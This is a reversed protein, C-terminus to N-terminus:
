SKKRCGYKDYICGNSDVIEVYYGLSAKLRVYNIANGLRKYKTLSLVGNIKPTYYM